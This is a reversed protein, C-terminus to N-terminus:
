EKKNPALLKFTNKYYELIGENALKAIERSLASRNVCLYDALQDRSFPLQFTNPKGNGVFQKLYALLKRRTTRESLVQLHSNLYLNKQALIHLMNEIISFNRVPNGELNHLINQFQLKVITCKEAAQVAVPSITIGACVFTEAFFDGQSLSGIITRNGDFDERIIQAAGSLLIGLFSIAQGENLLFAGKDYTQVQPSLQPLLEEIETTDMGSFLANKQLTAIVYDM